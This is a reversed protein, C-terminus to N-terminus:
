VFKAQSLLCIDPCFGTTEKPEIACESLEEYSSPVALELHEGPWLTTSQPVRLTTRRIKLRNDRSVYIHSTGDNFTIKHLGPELTINHEEIFPMGALIDVDLGDVVLAEIFLATQGRYLQFQCEGVVNLLSSGDAQRAKQRTPVVKLRLRKALSAEVMNGTAGTDLIVRVADENVFAEFSPSQRVIVRYTQKDDSDSQCEEEEVSENESDDHELIAGIQRAKSLYRKDAPPLHKCESLFHQDPRHAAKCLPCSKTPKNPRRSPWHRTNEKKKSTFVKHISTDSARLEDLLSGLAQSIEPKISALTQSRLETGYRQKVLKPLDKHLAQLWMVIVVNELTPSMEEDEAIDEGQHKVPSDKLLLNDEIFAMMRQFLDEPKEDPGLHIESLDLIQSGSSQFGYHLRIEQWISKLSTSKNIITNRSIIPCFNAIQGLMLELTTAKRAATAGTFGRNLTTKSKKKWETDIMDKFTDDCSLTYVLNNKWSEFSNVTENTTLCWQKPARSTAAM